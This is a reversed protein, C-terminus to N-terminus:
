GVGGDGDPAAPQKDATAADDSNTGGFWAHGHPAVPNRDACVGNDADSRGYADARKRGRRM